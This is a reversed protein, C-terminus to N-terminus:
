SLSFVAMQSPAGVVEDVPGLPVIHAQYGYRESIADCWMQFEARTWEFRHDRHRFQGAPLTPFRVNYEQNPTTIIVSGPRAASFLVRELAALRPADLHEIVEVLAAADYGVLRDDRYVLSGHLLTIREQVREPLRDLRLRRKAIELQRVSIDMGVIETFSPDQLLMRLLRGEGCGLDLVRTAGRRKLTDLVAELRQQHLSLPAELNTEQQEANEAEADPDTMEEAVLRALAERTLVRRHSLYRQTIREREPHDGLWGQGHRLLKDIEAQDVYYHKQDDLVPILVYLHSLLDQLRITHTLTLTFYHSQGWQPNQPDLEHGTAELQYGLPEFLARLLPEGGRCPLVAVKAVLPLPTEALAARERSSGALASGYVQAIAVSMFSSAVYPRDNVYQSLAFGGRDSRGKRRVLGVPDVDLLLAATCREQTAEPYFVHVQGFSLKFSQTRTPNKHLLYGLDTAPPQSYTITLLM